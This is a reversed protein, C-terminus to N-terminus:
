GKNIADAITQQHEAFDEVWDEARTHLRSEGRPNGRWDGGRVRFLPPRGVPLEHQAFCPQGPGFEFVTLGAENRAETHSRSRDHRIFHAQAQGRDTQEDVITRWGHIHADCEVEGCSAVRMHTARPQKVAYTKMAEVPNRPQIRFPEAM